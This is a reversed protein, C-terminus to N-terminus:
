EQLHVSKLMETYTNLDAGWDAGWDASYFNTVSDFEQWFSENRITKLLLNELNLYTKYGDQDFRDRITGVITYIAQYYIKAINVKWLKMFNQKQM